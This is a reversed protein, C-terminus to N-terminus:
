PHFSGPRYKLKTDESERGIPWCGTGRVNAIWTDGCAPARMMRISSLAHQLLISM